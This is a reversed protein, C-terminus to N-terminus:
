WQLYLIPILVNSSQHRRMPESKHLVSSGSIEDVSQIFMVYNSAETKNLLRSCFYFTFLARSLSFLSSPCYSLTFLIVTPLCPICPSPFSPPFHPFTNKELHRFFLSNGEGLTKLFSLRLVIKSNSITAEMLRHIVSISM